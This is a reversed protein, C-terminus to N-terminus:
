YNIVEGIWIFSFVALQPQCFYENNREKKHRMQKTAINAVFIDLSGLSAASFLAQQIFPNLGGVEGKKRSIVKSTWALGM